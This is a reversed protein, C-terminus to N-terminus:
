VLYTHVFPSRSQFQSVKSKTPTTLLTSASPLLKRSLSRGGPHLELPESDGPNMNQDINSGAQNNSLLATEDIRPILETPLAPDATSNNRKLKELYDCLKGNYFDNMESIIELPLSKMVEVDLHCLPPLASPRNESYRLSSQVGNALISSGTLNADNLSSAQPDGGPFQVVLILLVSLNVISVLM